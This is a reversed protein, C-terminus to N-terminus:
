RPHIFVARHLCFWVQLGTVFRQHFHSDARRTKM